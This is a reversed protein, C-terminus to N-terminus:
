DFQEVSGDEYVVSRLCVTGVVDAKDVTMIREGSPGYLTDFSFVDGALIKADDPIPLFEIIDRGLVDEFSVHGRVMRTAKPLNSVVSVSAGYRTMMASEQKLPAWDNLVLMETTGIRCEAAAASGCMLLVGAIAIWKM